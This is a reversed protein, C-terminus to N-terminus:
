VVVQLVLLAQQAQTEMQVMQATVVTQAMLAQLAM